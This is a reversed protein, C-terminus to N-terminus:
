CHTDQALAKNKVTCHHQMSLDKTPMATLKYHSKTGGPPIDGEHVPFQNYFDSVLLHGILWM